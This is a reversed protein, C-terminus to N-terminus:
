RLKRSENCRLMQANLTEVFDKKLASFSKSLNERIESYHNDVFVLTLLSSTIVVVIYFFVIVTLRKLEIEIFRSNLRHISSLDCEEDRRVVTAPQYAPPPPPPVLPQSMHSPLPLLLLLLIQRTV